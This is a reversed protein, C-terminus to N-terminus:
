KSGRNKKNVKALDVFSQPPVELRVIRLKLKEIEDRLNSSGEQEPHESSPADSFWFDMRNWHRHVLLIASIGRFLLTFLAAVALFASFWTVVEGICEYNSM